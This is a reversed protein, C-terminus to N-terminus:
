VVLPTIVSIGTGADPPIAAPGSPLMQSVSSPLIARNSMGWGGTVKGGTGALVAFTAVLVTVFLAVVSPAVRSAAM